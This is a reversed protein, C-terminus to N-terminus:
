IKTEDLEGTTTGDVTYDELARFQDAYTSWNTAAQYDALLASPVYIYGAGSAVPTGALADTNGLSCVTETNRIIVTSLNKSSLFTEADLTQVVFLDVRSLNPCYSFTHRAGLNTCKPLTVSTMGCESFTYTNTISVLEPLCLEGTIGSCKRFADKGLVSVKPINVSSLATCGQFANVGITTANPLDVTELQNCGDFAYDGVKTVRNEKYETVTRQIIQDCMEDDGIVDATNIFESM